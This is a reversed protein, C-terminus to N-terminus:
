RRRRRSGRGGRQRTQRPRPKRKPRPRGKRIGHITEELNAKLEEAVFRGTFADARAAIALKGAFARAIAGRQWYPSQRVWPHQFLVGHKPPAAGERLHRFLAKEAGLLQITSAPMRGLEPLGGAQSILRAGLVPGALHTLNPARLKMNEELYAELSARRRFLDLTMEALSRIAMEDGEELAGGASEVPELPMEERRGHEAILRPFEKPEVLRSLEPFHLSYWDRLREMLLNQSHSLDDLARVGQIIHDAPQVARRMQRRGLSIMAERLLSTTFGFDEAKLFPPPESTFTGGLDELRRETVSFSDLGRAMEREEELIEGEEVQAMRKALAEAEKPFLASKVVKGEEELFTGFWTSFLLM